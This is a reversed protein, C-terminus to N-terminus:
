FGGFTAHLDIFLAPFQKLEDAAADLYTAERGSDTSHPCHQYFNRIMRLFDSPRASYTSAKSRAMNERLVGGERLRKRWDAGLRLDEGSPLRTHRGTRVVESIYLFRNKTSWFFPHSLCEEIVLQRCVMGEVLDFAEYSVRQLGAANWLSRRSINQNQDKSQLGFIHHGSVILSIVCGAAFIDAAAGSSLTDSTFVDEEQLASAVSSGSVGIMSRFGTENNCYFINTPQIAHHIVGAYHVARLGSLLQLCIDQQFSAVTGYSSPIDKQVHVLTLLDILTGNVPEVHIVGIDGDTVTTKIIQIVNRHSPVRSHESFVTLMDKRCLRICRAEDNAALPEELVTQGEHSCSPQANSARDVPILQNSARAQATASHTISQHKVLQEEIHYRSDARWSRELLLECEAHDSRRALAVPAEGKNNRCSVSMGKSLLWTLTRISGHGAATHLLTNGMKDLLHSLDGGYLEIVHLSDTAVACHALLSELEARDDRPPFWALLITEPHRMLAASYVDLSVQKCLTECSFNSCVYLAILQAEKSSAPQLSSALQSYDFLPLLAKQGCLVGEYTRTGWSDQLVVSSSFLNDANEGWTQRINALVSQSYMSSSHCACIVEALLKSLCRCCLVGEKHEVQIIQLGFSQLCIGRVLFRASLELFIMREIANKSYILARVADRLSKQFNIDGIPWMDWMTPALFSAREHMAGRAWTMLIAKLYGIGLLRQWNRSRQLVHLADFAFTTGWSLVKTTSSIGDDSGGRSDERGNEGWSGVREGGEAAVAGLVGSIPSSHTAPSLPSFLCKIIKSVAAKPLDLDMLFGLEM